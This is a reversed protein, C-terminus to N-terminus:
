ASSRAEQFEGGNSTVGHFSPESASRATCVLNGTAQAKAPLPTTLKAEHLIAPDSHRFRGLRGGPAHGSNKVYGAVTAARWLWLPCLACTVLSVCLHVVCVVAALLLQSKLSIRAPNYPCHQRSV